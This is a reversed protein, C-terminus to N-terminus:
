AGKKSDVVTMGTTSTSAAHIVAIVVAIPLQAQPVPESRDRRQDAFSM